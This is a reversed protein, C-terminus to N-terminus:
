RTWIRADQLRDFLVSEDRGNAIWEAIIESAKDIAANHALIVAQRQLQVHMETIRAAAELLDNM